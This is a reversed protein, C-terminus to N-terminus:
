ARAPHWRTWKQGTPSSRRWISSIAPSTMGCTEHQTVRPDKDDDGAGAAPNIHGAAHARLVSLYVAVEPEGAPGSPLRDALRDLLRGLEGMMRARDAEAADRQAALAALDAHVAAMAQDLASAQGAQLRDLRAFLLRKFWEPELDAVAFELMGRAIARGAKLTEDEDPSRMCRAIREALDEVPGSGLLKWTREDELLERIANFEKSSLDIDGDAAARVIRSLGDQRRLRRIWRGGAGALTTATWTVPWEAVAPGDVDTILWDLL